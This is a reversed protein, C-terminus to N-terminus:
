PELEEPKRGTWLLWRRYWGMARASQHQASTLPEFSKTNVQFIGSQGHEDPPTPISDNM